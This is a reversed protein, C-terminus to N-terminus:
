DPSLEDNDHTCECNDALYEGVEALCVGAAFDPNKSTGLFTKGEYNVEAVFFEDRDPEYVTVELNMQHFVNRM